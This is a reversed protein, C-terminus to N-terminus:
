IPDDHSRIPTTAPQTPPPRENTPGTTSKPTSKKTLSIYIASSMIIATGAISLASPTTRYVIFEFIVAFVIMCSHYTLCHLPHARKGIARTVTFTGTAGLVGLLAAIVSLMRKNPTVVESLGRQFVLFLNHSVGLFFEKLSLPEKLFIAGSFGTLIPAIFTLVTADSLSLGQLSFYMGFAWCFLLGRVSKPGLFPNPIKRGFMIVMRVWILELTPIPEDLNSLWKVSINMASFFFQSAVVLLLGTNKNLFASVPHNSQPVHTRHTPFLPSTEDPDVQGDRSSIVAPDPSPLLGSTATTYSSHSTAMGPVAVSTCRLSRAPNIAGRGPNTLMPACIWTM